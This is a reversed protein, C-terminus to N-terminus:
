RAAQFARGVPTADGNSRFPGSTARTPPPCASGPTVSCSRAAAMSKTAGTVFAAEQADTPFKPAGSFDMLGYETLWIPLNYRDYVAQLYRALQGVAPPASTPATGTCPSSTSATGRQRAGSMFRDLWGGATDGGYAVAPSGLRMGPRRLKPWLALAQEVTMNAQEALDPENFGLLM